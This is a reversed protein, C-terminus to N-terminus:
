CVYYSCQAQSVLTMIYPHLCTALAILTGGAATSPPNNISVLKAIEGDTILTGPVSQTSGIRRQIVM